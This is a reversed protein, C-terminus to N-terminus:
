ITTEKEERTLKNKLLDISRELLQYTDDYEDIQKGIQFKIDGQEGIFERLTYVNAANVYKSYAKVKSGSDLALVLTGDEFDENTMQKAAHGSLNLGHRRAIEEIKQNAPESFLVVNGRSAVRIGFHNEQSFKKKLMVQALPSLATNEEDLFIIQSYKIM